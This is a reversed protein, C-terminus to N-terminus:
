HRLSARTYDLAVRIVFMGIAVTTAVSLIVLVAFLFFIGGPITVGAVSMMVIFPFAAWILHAFKMHPGM